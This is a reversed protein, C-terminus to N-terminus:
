HFFKILKKVTKLDEPEDIDIAKLKDMFLPVYRFKNNSSKLLYEANYYAIHGTPFFSNTFNQNKQLIKKDIFQLFNKNM